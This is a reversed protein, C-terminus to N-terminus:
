SPPSRVSSSLAENSLDQLPAGDAISCDPTPPGLRRDAPSTGVGPRRGRGRGGPECLSTEENRPEETAMDLLFALSERGHSLSDSKGECTLHAENTVTTPTPVFVPDARPPSARVTSVGRKSVDVSLWYVYFRAPSVSHASWGELSLPGGGEGESTSGEGRGARADGRNGLTHPRVADEPSAPRFAAPTRRKRLASRRDPQRRPSRHGESKRAWNGSKTSNQLGQLSSSVRICDFAFASDSLAVALVFLALLAGFRHRM